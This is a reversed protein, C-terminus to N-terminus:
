QGGAFARRLEEVSLHDTAAHVEEDTPTKQTTKPKYYQGNKGSATEIMRKAYDDWKVDQETKELADTESMGSKMLSSIKKYFDEEYEQAIKLAMSKGRFVDEPDAVNPKISNVLNIKAAQANGAMSGVLQTHIRGTIAAAQGYAEMTAKTALGKKNKYADLPGVASNFSNGAMIDDLAKFETNLKSAGTARNSYDIYTKAREKGEEKQFADNAVGGGTELITAEQKGSPYKTISVLRGKEDIQTSVSKAYGHRELYKRAAPDNEYAEDYAYLNPNGGSIVYNKTGPNQYYGNPQQAPPQQMTQQPAGQGIMQPSAQPQGGPASMPQMNSQQNMPMPPQADMQPSGMSPQGSQAAPPSGASQNNRRNLYNMLASPDLDQGQQQALYARSNAENIDAQTKQPYYQNEMQAKETSLRMQQRENRMKEPLQALMYGKQIGEIIGPMGNVKPVSNPDASFDPYYGM